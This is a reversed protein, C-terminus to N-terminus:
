VLLCSICYFTTLGSSLLRLFDVNSLLKLPLKLPLQLLMNKFRFPHHGSELSLMLSPIFIHVVWKPRCHVSNLESWSLVISCIHSYHFYKHQVFHGHFVGLSRSKISGAIRWISVNTPEETGGFTSTSIIRPGVWWKKVGEENRGGQGGMLHGSLSSTHPLSGSLIIPGFDALNRCLCQLLVATLLWKSSLM